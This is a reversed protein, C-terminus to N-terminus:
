DMCDKCPEYGFSVAKEVPLEITNTKNKIHFCNSEHYKRGSVTVYILKPENNDHEIESSNLPTNSSEEINELNDNQNLLFGTITIISALLVVLIIYLWYIGKKKINLCEWYSQAVKIPIVYKESLEVENKIKNKLISEKPAILIAALINADYHQTTGDSEHHLLHHAIEHAIAFNKYAYKEDYYITYEGKYLAYIAGNNLLPNKEPFDQKCETSNKVRLNFNRALEFSDRAFTPPNNLKNIIINNLEKFDM